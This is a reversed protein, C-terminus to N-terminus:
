TPHSLFTLGTMIGQLNTKSALRSRFGPDASLARRADEILKAQPITLALNGNSGASGLPTLRIFPVTASFADRSDEPQPLFRFLYEGASGFRFAYIGGKLLSHVVGRFERERAAALAVEADPNIRKFRFRSPNANM